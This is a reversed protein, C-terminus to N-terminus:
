HDESEADMEKEEAEAEDIQVMIELPPQGYAELDSGTEEFDFPDDSLKIFKDRLREITTYRGGEGTRLRFWVTIFIGRSSASNDLSHVLSFDTDV